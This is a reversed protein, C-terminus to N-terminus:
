KFKNGVVIYEARKWKIYPELRVTNEYIKMFKQGGLPLSSLFMFRYVLRSLFNFYGDVKKIALNNNQFLEMIENMTYGKRVHGWSKNVSDVREKSLFPFSVGDQMPTTLILKGNKKLIRSIEKILKDDDQIHEILDLCLVVDIKNDMIALELTSAYLTSLGRERASELGSKDVDVVAIKVKPVLKKLNYSIYGDYGGIDLVVAGHKIEFRLINKLAFWRLLTGPRM